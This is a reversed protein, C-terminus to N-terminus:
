IFLHRIKNEINFLVASFKKSVFKETTRNRDLMFMNYKLNFKFAVTSKM